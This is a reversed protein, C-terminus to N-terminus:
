PALQRLREAIGEATADKEFHAIYRGDRGMLYIFGTHTVTYDGTDKGDADKLPAKAAYVRYSQTARRVQEETGSLALFRPHFNAIYSAMADPTDRAPDVTIFVPRVQDAAPGAKELAQTMVQLALPCIDPCRIFGFFILSYSGKLDAATVTNGTSDTLTFPGGIAVAGTGSVTGIPQGPPAAPWYLVLVLVMSVVLIVAVAIRGPM